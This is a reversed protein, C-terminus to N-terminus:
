FVLDSVARNIIIIIFRINYMFHKVVKAIFSM